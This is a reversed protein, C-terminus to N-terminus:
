FNTNVIEDLDKKIYGMEQMLSKQDHRAKQIDNDTLKGTLILDETYEKLLNMAKMQDRKEGIIYDYYRQYDNKVTALFENEKSSEKLLKQKHLLMARKSEIQAEIHKLSQDRQALDIYYIDM